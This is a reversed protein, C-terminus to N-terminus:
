RDLHYIGLRAVRPGPAHLPGAKADADRYMWRVARWRGAPVAVTLTPDGYCPDGVCVAGDAVDLDGVVQAHESDAPHLTPLMAEYVRDTRRSREGNWAHYADRLDSRDPNAVLQDFDPTPLDALAEDVADDIARSMFVVEVGTTPGGPEAAVTVVDYGGDGWGTSSVAAGDDLGGDRAVDHDLGGFVPHHRGPAIAMTGSDVGAVGITSRIGDALHRDFTTPTTAMTGEWLLLLKGVHYAPPTVVVGPGVVTGVRANM